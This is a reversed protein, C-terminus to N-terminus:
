RWEAVAEESVPGYEAGWSNRIYTVVAAVEADSLQQGFGPMYGQGDLVQEILQGADALVENGAIKIVHSALVEDGSNGHCNACHSRYVRIGDRMVSRLEQADMQPEAPAEAQPGGAGEAGVVTGDPAIVYWREGVGQGSADGPQEDNAFAYLPWGHYTVQSAGDDRAVRGVADADIGDGVVVEGEAILPPWAAACDGYCTSAGQEDPLFLYLVTGDSTTVHPGLAESEAVTLGIAGQAAAVSLLAAAALAVLRVPLTRVVHKM